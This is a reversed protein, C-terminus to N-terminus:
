SGQKARRSSVVHESKHRRFQAVVDLDQAEEKDLQSCRGTSASAEEHRQAPSTKRQRFDVGCGEVVLALSVHRVVHHDEVRGQPVALLRGADREVDALLELDGVLEGAEPTSTISAPKGIALSPSKSATSAIALATRPGIM